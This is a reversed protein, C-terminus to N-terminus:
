KLYEYITEQLAIDLNENFGSLAKSLGVSAIFYTKKHDEQQSGEPFEQENYSRLNSIRDAIKIQKAEPSMKLAHEIQWLHKKESTLNPDNTLEEVLGKVKESFLYSIEEGIADTDELTDHLAAAALIFHDKVNGEELLILIVSIPHAIYPIGSYKRKQGEHKEAAYAVAQLVLEASFKSNWITEDRLLAELRDYLEMVVVNEDSHDAVTQRYLPFQDLDVEQREIILREIPTACHLQSVLSFAASFLISIIKQM